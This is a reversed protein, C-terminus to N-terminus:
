PELRQVEFTNLDNLVNRVLSFYDPVYKTLLFAHNFHGKM